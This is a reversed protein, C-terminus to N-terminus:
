WPLVQHGAHTTINRHSEVCCWTGSSHFEWSCQQMVEFSTFVPCNSMKKITSFSISSLLAQWCCIAPYQSWKHYAHKMETPEEAQVSVFKSKM